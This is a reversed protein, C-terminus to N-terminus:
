VTSGLNPAVEGVPWNALNTMWRAELSTSIAMKNFFVATGIRKIAEYSKQMAMKSRWM